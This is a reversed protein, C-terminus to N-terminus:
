KIMLNKAAKHYEDWQGIDIWSKEDIPYVGLKLKKRKALKILDTMDFYQNIPILRLISDNLIYMGTNVLFEYEPKENLKSLTGGNKILCIGYPIVYHKCSVVITMDNKEEQHFALLDAYDIDVIIDCNTVIFPNKIRKTLMHLCGATGLPLKENIYHIKYQGDVDEFYSKIMRSKHNVSIFFEKVDYEGFKDMIIEIIPKDGIPILPKPLITTFPDLRSGKGGAMIVVQISLKNKQKIIGESFITDWTLIDSIRNNDDLVPISEIQNDLMLKKITSINYGSNVVIPNSNCAQYAKESLQRGSLIWRRIDGDSLAGYLEKNREVVFLVKGGIDKMTQMAQKVTSNRSLLFKDSKNGM